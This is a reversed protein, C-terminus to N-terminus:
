RLYLQRSVVGPPEGYCPRGDEQRPGPLLQVAPTGKLHLRLARPVREAAIGRIALYWTAHTAGHSPVKATILFYEQALHLSHWVWVPEPPQNSPANSPASCTSATFKHHMNMGKPFLGDTTLLAMVSGVVTNIPSTNQRSGNCLAFTHHAVFAGGLLWM